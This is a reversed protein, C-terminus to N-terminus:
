TSNLIINIAAFEGHYEVAAKNYARAADEQSTYYGLSIKKKNVQIQAVWTGYTCLSVGKYKSTKDKRLKNNNRTNEQQTCIRLNSKRNDLTDGNIHDVIKTPPCNMLFRHLRIEKKNSRTVLYRKSSLYWNYQSIISYDEDDILFVTGSRTKLQM